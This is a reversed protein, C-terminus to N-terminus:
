ARLGGALLQDRRQVADRPQVDAAHHDVVARVVMGARGIGVHRHDRVLAPELASVAPALKFLAVAQVLQRAQLNLGEAAAASQEVLAANQQTAQDMQTVAAGVQAVGASQESSASSIEGMIDTVRRISDVVETMTAGAQAVLDTGQEVRELSASILGKIERAAEASRGALSRVESAVVAFGRGQEGARAAEVAANLALINTQFAIGDIVGIIDAIKKSSDNIGKMTDVVHAVVEGGKVAVTSASQALHNARSANAANQSVTASLQEMSAATEELASAQQETRASLDNNGAAIETSGTAISDSSSRVQTVIGVLAESMQGLAAMISSKDGAAVSVQVSLDGQAVLRAVAAAAAPEGGVAAWISRRIWLGFGALGVSALALLLTVQWLMSQYASEASAFSSDAFAVSEKVTADVGVRHAQYAVHAAKLAAKVADADNGALADLVKGAAVIFAQGAQHQEGLLKAELGYPPHEQWYRVRAQYEDRLRKVEALVQDAPMSGEVAQSLLLRMEILYMPPPLIDATVDKAVFTQTAARHAQRMDWLSVAGVMATAALAVVTFTTLMARMGIGRPAHAAPGHMSNNNTTM